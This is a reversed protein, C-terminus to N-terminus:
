VHPNIGYQYGFSLGPFLGTTIDVQTGSGSGTAAVRLPGEVNLAPGKLNLSFGFEALEISGSPTLSSTQRYFFTMRGPANDHPPTYTYSTPRGIGDIKVESYPGLTVTGSFGHGSTIEMYANPEYDSYENRGSVIFNMGIGTGAYTLAQDPGIRVTHLNKSITQASVNAM